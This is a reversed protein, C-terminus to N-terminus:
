RRVSDFRVRGEAGPRSAEIEYADGGDATRVVVAADADVLRPHEDGGTATRTLWIRGDGLREGDAFRELVAAHPSGVHAAIGGVVNRSRGDAPAVLDVFAANSSTDRVHHHAHIVDIGSAGYFRPGARAALASEIDPVGPRGEGTLDGGFHYRFAGHEIVGVLSRANEENNDDHGFADVLVAEEGDSVRADAAVFTLRAGEGLPIYTPSGAGVGDLLSGAFLECGTAAYPGSWEGSDCPARTAARCLPVDLDARDGRLLRCVDGVTGENMGGGLDVFGRHVIGRTVELPPDDVLLEELGGAHDGHFHTLVIWDVELPSRAREYGRDPTLCGGNVARLADRIEGSHNSNGVDLLVTTGDPGIILAAEGHKATGNLRLQIVTLEGPAPELVDDRGVCGEYVPRDCGPLLFLALLLVRM